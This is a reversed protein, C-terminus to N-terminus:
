VVILTTVMTAHGNGCPVSCYIKYEGPEEPTFTAMGDGQIDIDFEDIALGHYGESNTLAINVEEGAKVTIESQDFEWNSATINITSADQSGTDESQESTQNEATEENNNPESSENGSCAALLLVLGLFLLSLFGKKKM